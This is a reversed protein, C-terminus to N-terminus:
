RAIDLRVGHFEFVEDSLREDPRVESINIARVTAKFNDLLDHDKPITIVENISSPLVYFGQKGYIGDLKKLVPPLLINYAGRIGESNSVVMMNTAVDDAAGIVHALPKVFPEEREMNEFADIIVSATVEDKSLYHDTFFVVVLEENVGLCFEDDRVNKRNVLEMVTKQAM